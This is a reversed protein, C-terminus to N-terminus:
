DVLASDAPHKPLYRRWFERADVLPELEKQAQATLWRWGGCRSVGAASVNLNLSWATARKAARPRRYLTHMLGRAELQKLAEVNAEFDQVDYAHIGDAHRRFEHSHRRLFFRVDKMLTGDTVCTAAFIVDDGTALDSATYLKKLDTIDMEGYRGAEEQSRVVLRGLIEGGFCRMAAATIVGEPAAGTSMVAHM